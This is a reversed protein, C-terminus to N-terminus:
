QQNDTCNNRRRMSDTCCRAGAQVRQGGKMIEEAIEVDHEHQTPEGNQGLLNLNNKTEGSELRLSLRGCADLAVLRYETHRVDPVELYSLMSFQCAYRKGTFMGIAAITVTPRGEQELVEVCKCPRGEFMLHSGESIEDARMQSGETLVRDNEDPEQSQQLPPVQQAQVARTARRPKGTQVGVSCSGEGVVFQAHVAPESINQAMEGKLNLNVESQGPEREPESVHRTLAREPRQASTFDAKQTAAKAQLPGKELESSTTGPDSQEPGPQCGAASQLGECELAFERIDMLLGPDPHCAVNRYKTLKSVRTALKAGQQGRQRLVEKAESICVKKKGALRAIASLVCEQSEMVSMTETGARGKMGAAATQARGVAANALWRLEAVPVEQARWIAGLLAPLGEIM